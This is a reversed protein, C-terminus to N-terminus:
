VVYENEYAKIGEKSHLLSNLTSLKMIKGSTTKKLQDNSVHMIFTPKVFFTELLMSSIAEYIKNEVNRKSNLLLAFSDHDPIAITDIEYQSLEKLRRNLHNEVDFLYINEGNIIVVDDLRGYIYLDGNKIYGIDGTQLFYDKGYLYTQLADVVSKGRICIKGIQQDGDIIIFTDDVPKGVCAVYEGYENRDFSNEISDFRHASVILTTEAMGYSFILSSPNLGLPVASSLFTEITDKRIPEAGIYITTVSSLTNTGISDKKALRKALYNLIFNPMATVNVQKEKILTIYRPTKRLFADISSLHLTNQLLLNSLFGGVLGMDHSLPLFNLGISNKTRNDTKVIMNINHFINSHSIHIAKPVSTSGSSFQIFAIEYALNYESRFLKSQENESFEISKFVKQDPNIDHYFYDIQYQKALMKLYEIYTQETGFRPKVSVPIVGMYLMALFTVTHEITPLLNIIVRDNEHLGSSVLFNAHRQILQRFEAYSVFKNDQHFHIGNTMSNLNNIIQILNAM